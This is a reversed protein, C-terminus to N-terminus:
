LRAGEATPAAAVVARIADDDLDAPYLLVVDAGAAGYAAVREALAEPEGVPVGTAAAVNAPTALGQRAFHAAYNPFTSGYSRAARELAAAPGVRVLVAVTTEGGATRRAVDVTRRTWEPSVWNLVLGDAHAAGIEAMRDGLAALWVPFGAGFAIRGGLSRLEDLYARAHAVPSRPYAVGVLDAFARHAVGCGLVFRGGSQEHVTAARLALHRAPHFPTGAVATGARLRASAGLAISALVFPDRGTIVDRDPISLETFLLHSLGRRDALPAVEAVLACSPDKLVIGVSM